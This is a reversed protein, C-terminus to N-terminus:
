LNRLSTVVRMESISMAIKVKNKRNLRALPEDTKNFRM